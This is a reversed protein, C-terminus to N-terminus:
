GHVGRLIEERLRDIVGDELAKLTLDCLQLWQDFSLGFQRAFLRQELSCLQEYILEGQIRGGEVSFLAEGLARHASKIRNQQFFDKIDEVGAVGRLLRQLVQLGVRTHMDYCYSPLDFLIKSPPLPTEVQTMELPLRLGVFKLLGEARWDNKKQWERWCNEPVQVATRQQMIASAIEKEPLILEPFQAKMAAGEIGGCSCYIHSRTSLDCMQETLFCIIRYNESGTKRPPFVTSCAVVFSALADDAPGIDECAIVCLRRWFYAYEEPMGDMASVLRVAMQKDGRRISKQFASVLEWKRDEAITLNKPCPPQYDRLSKCLSLWRESTAKAWRNEPYRLLEQFQASFMGFGSVTDTLAQNILLEPRQFPQVKLLIQQIRPACVFGLIKCNIAV